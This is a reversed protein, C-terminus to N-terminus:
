KAKPEQAHIRGLLRFTVSIHDFVEISQQISVADNKELLGYIYDYLCFLAQAEESEEPKLTMQLQAIINQAKVINASRESPNVLATKLFKVGSEHLMQLSKLQGATKIQTDKYDVARNIAAM